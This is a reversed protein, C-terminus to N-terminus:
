TLLRRTKSKLFALLCSGSKSDSSCRVISANRSVYSYKCFMAVKKPTKDGGAINREMWSPFETFNETHPNVSNRFTGVQVEYENRTDVVLCDPDELLGNWKEPKVYTGVCQIPCADEKRMTVIESKLKVKLRAFIPRDVKSIRIRPDFKSKMYDIIPDNEEGEEESPYPYCITGNIGEKALLLTGRSRHQRCVSEIEGQLDKLSDETLLPNVFKYLTLVRHPSSEEKDLESIKSAIRPSSSSEM